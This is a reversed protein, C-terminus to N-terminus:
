VVETASIEGLDSTARYTVTIKRTAADFSLDLSVIDLIGVTELITRRFWERVAALDPNKVFIEEFYPIGIDEDAFWEGRFFRLNQQVAQAISEVGSTFKVGNADIVLDGTTPDVYFNRVVDAM